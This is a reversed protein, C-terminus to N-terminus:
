WLRESQFKAKALEETDLMSLINNIKRILKQMPLPLLCTCCNAMQIAEDVAFTQVVPNQTPQFVCVITNTPWRAM